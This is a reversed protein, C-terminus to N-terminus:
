EWTHTRGPEAALVTSYKKQNRAHLQADMFSSKHRKPNKAFIRTKMKKATKRWFKATKPLFHEKQGMEELRQQLNEHNKGYSGIKQDKLFPSFFNQPFIRTKSKKAWNQGNKALFARKPGNRGLAAIFKGSQQGLFRNKPRKFFLSFFNRPFIRMKSKPRKQGFIIKKAWKEWVSSYIKRIKAM